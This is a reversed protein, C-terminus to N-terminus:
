WKKEVKKFYLVVSKGIIPTLIKDLWRTIRPSKMIDWMLFKHYIKVPLWTDRKRWNICKLWWYPSHLGHAYHKKLFKFGLREIELKLPTEKFIRIHGGKEYKYDQSLIWCIREPFYRPVSVVLDGGMKLIKWIEKIVRHYNEIHELVESCIVYDFSEQKFPLFECRGQAILWNKNQNKSLPFYKKCNEHTKRAANFDLDLGYALVGKKLYVYHLHRGEGCGLDLVRCGPRIDLTSFDVTLM